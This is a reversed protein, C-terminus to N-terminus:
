QNILAPALGPGLPTGLGTVADYGTGATCQVGCTGNIGSVIDRFDTSYGAGSAAAYIATQVAQSGSGLPPKGSKQRMQDVIAIFGAWSPAGVSTGGAVLWGSLGNLPTSDFIAVGTLPDADFSVDPMVRTGNSNIGYSSQYSPQSEILSAGGGSGTWAKETTLLNGRLNLVVHTGGVGVVYPSSAPYQTGHGNDGTSAIFVISPQNFNPDVAVESPSETQGYSMSVVAPNQSVAFLMANLLDTSTNDKAEILLIRAGPAIAHSWEVDISIEEAWNPDVSPQGQPVVKSFCGNATTCAPLHFTNDFTALDSEINPDDFGDILAITQGAGNGKIQDLGYAHLIQAPSYGNIHTSTGPLDTRLRFHPTAVGPLTAASPASAALGGFAELLMAVVAVVATLRTLRM